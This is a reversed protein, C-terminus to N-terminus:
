RRRRRVADVAECMKEAGEVIRPGMRILLDVPLVVLNRQKVATLDPWRQWQELSTQAGAEGTTVIMEPNAALVVEINVIPVRSPLDAFVNVAGCMRMVDGIVHHDNVTMLPQPWVQYYVRVPARGAYTARLREIRTRFGRAVAQAPAGTLTGLKEIAAAIDDMADPETVFVPIGLERMKEIQKQANGSRWAVVLDPALMRILEIDVADHDGVRPIKKAADPYDSFNIAGVMQGGAGIAFLMETVHPALSVIRRAPQALRVLRGEDDIVAIQAHAIASCLCLAPMLMSARRLINVKGPM